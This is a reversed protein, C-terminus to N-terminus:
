LFLDNVWIPTKDGLYVDSVNFNFYELAEDLKMGDRKVLIDVCKNISYVLRLTNDEIGIVAEDFGDATVLEVDDYCAVIRELKNM